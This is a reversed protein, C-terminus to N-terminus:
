INMITNYSNNLCIIYNSKLINGTDEKQKVM